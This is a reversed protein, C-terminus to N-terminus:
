KGSLEGAIKKMTQDWTKFILDAVDDDLKAGTGYFLDLIANQVNNIKRAIRKHPPIVREFIILLTVGLSAAVTLCQSETFEVVTKKPQEVYLEYTTRKGKMVKRYLQETM